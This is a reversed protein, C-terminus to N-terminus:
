LSVFNEVTINLQNIIRRLLPVGIDKGHPNPIFIKQSEKSMYQHRTATFLRDFGELFRFNEQM